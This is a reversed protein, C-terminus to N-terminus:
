LFCSFLLFLRTSIFYKLGDKQPLSKSTRTHCLTYLWCCRVLSTDSIYASHLTHWAGATTPRNHDHIAGQVLLGPGPAPYGHQQQQQQPPANHAHMQHHLRAQSLLLRTSTPTLSRFLPLSTRNLMVETCAVDQWAAEKAGVITSQALAQQVCQGPVLVVQVSSDCEATVLRNSRGTLVELLGAVEGAGIREYESVDDDDDDDGEKGPEKMAMVKVTGRIIVYIGDVQNGKRFLNAGRHAPQLAESRSLIMDQIHPELLRFFPVHLLADKVHTKSSANESQRSHSSSFQFHLKKRSKLLAKDVIIVEKDELEGHHALHAAHDKMNQLLAYCVSKTAISVAIDPFKQKLDDLYAQARDISFSADGLVEFCVAKHEDDMHAHLLRKYIKAISQNGDDDSGHDHEDHGEEEEKSDGHAQHDHVELMHILARASEKHAFIFSNAIDYALSLQQELYYDAVRSVVPVCALTSWFWPPETFGEVYMWEDVGQLMVDHLVSADEARNAGDVLAKHANNSTFGTEFQRWYNAKVLNFFTHRAHQQFRFSELKSDSGPGTLQTAMMTVDSEEPSSM